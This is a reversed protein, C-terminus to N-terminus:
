EEEVARQQNELISVTRELSSVVDQYWIFVESILTVFQNYSDLAELFRERLQAVSENQEISRAEIPALQPVLLELEQLVPADLEDKLSDIDRLQEAIQLLDEESALVVAKKAHIDLASREVEDTQNQLLDRLQEYRMLFDGIVPRDETIQMLQAQMNQVSSLISEEFVERNGSSLLKPATLAELHRLREDLQSIQQTYDTTGITM